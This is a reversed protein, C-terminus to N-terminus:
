RALLPEALLADRRVLVRPRQAAPLTLAIHPVRQDLYAVLDGVTLGDGGSDAEGALARTVYTSLLGGLGGAADEYPQAQEDPGGSTALVIVDEDGMVELLEAALAPGGPGFTDVARPGGDFDADLVIVRRAAPVERLSLVLDRVARREGDALVLAHGAGDARRWGRGSFSVLLTDDATARARLRALAGDLAAATADLNVLTLVNKAPALPSGGAPPTTLVATLGRADDAAGACAGGSGQYDTVGVAVAHLTAAAERREDAPMEDFAKAVDRALRLAAHRYAFPGLLAGVKEWQDPDLDGPTYTGFLDVGRQTDDLDFAPPALAADGVDGVDVPTAVVLRRAALGPLPRESGALECTVEVECAVGYREDAILWQPGVPFFYWALFFANPYWWGNTGLFTADWRVTRSRLVVDFGDEWLARAEEASRAAVVAVPAEDSAVVVQRLAEVMEDQLRTADFGMPGSLAGEDATAGTAPAVPPLVVIRHARVRPQGRLETVPPLLAPDYSSCGTLSAAALTLAPLARTVSRM